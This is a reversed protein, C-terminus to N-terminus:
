LHACLSHICSCAFSHVFPLHANRLQFHKWEPSMRPFVSSKRFFQAASRPWSRLHRKNKVIISNKHHDAGLFFALSVTPPKQKQKDAESSNHYISNSRKEEEMLKCIMIIGKKKTSQRDISAQFTQLNSAPCTCQPLIRGFSSSALDISQM